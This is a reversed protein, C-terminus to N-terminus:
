ECYPIADYNSEGNMISDVIDPFGNSWNTSKFAARGGPAGPAVACGSAPPAGVGNPAAGGAAGGGGGCGTM